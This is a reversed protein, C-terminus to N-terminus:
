CDFEVGAGSDKSTPSGRLSLRLSICICLTLGVKIMSNRGFTISRKTSIYVEAFAIYESFGVVGKGSGCEPLNLFLPHYFGQNAAVQELANAPNVRVMDGASSVRPSM